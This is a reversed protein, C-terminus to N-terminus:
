SLGRVLNSCCAVLKESEREWNLQRAAALANRKYCDIAARDLLNVQTAIAEPSVGEILRGLDHHRLLRAMEPLNSVCLALGAMTYEFFKNPLVFRNHRSHGPLVFLGVDASNAEKVLDVMPVAPVLCVRSGVGARKIRRELDSRYAEGVPGRITLRFEPRWLAVSEICEELGRGPSVVGHYLVDIVEGTPRFPMEQYAPTNCIVTPRRKLGYLAQLRDAIGESVCTVLSARRLGLREIAMVLPQHLLRWALRESYEEAALEHTDYVLIGGQEDVLRLAIPLATWDNAL